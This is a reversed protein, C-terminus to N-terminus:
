ETHLKQEINIPRGINEYTSGSTTGLQLWVFYSLFAMFHACSFTSILVPFIDPFRTPPSIIHFLGCLILTGEM